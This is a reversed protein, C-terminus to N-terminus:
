PKQQYQIAKGQVYKFFVAEKMEEFTCDLARNSICIPSGYYNQKLELTRKKSRTPERNIYEQPNSVKLVIYKYKLNELDNIIKIDEVDKWLVTGIHCGTSIDYIGEESIYMATFQEKALLYFAKLCFFTILLLFFGLLMFVLRGNGIKLHSSVILGGIGFCLSGITFLLLGRKKKGSLKFKIVSSKEM